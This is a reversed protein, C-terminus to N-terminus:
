RLTFLKENKKQRVMSAQGRVIAVCSGHQGIFSHLLLFCVFSRVLFCVFLCFYLFCTLLAFIVVYTFLFIEGRGGEGTAGRM